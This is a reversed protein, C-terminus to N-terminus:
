SPGGPAQSIQAWRDQTVAVDDFDITRDAFQQSREHGKGLIVVVDGARALRLAQEIATARDGGDYAEVRADHSGPAASAIAERAGALVRARIAAPDESRPNDDTVLVRDALREAVEAMLARKGRDRDGGCGFLCLM